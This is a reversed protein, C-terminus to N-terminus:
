PEKVLYANVECVEEGNVLELCVEYRMVTGNELDTHAPVNVWSLGQGNTKMLGLEQRQNDPTLLTVRSQVGSLPNGTKTSLISLFVVQSTEHGIVPYQEGIEFQIDDPTVWEGLLIDETIVNEELLKSVYWAGLPALEAMAAGTQTDQVLDLCYNEFCQRIITEETDYYATEAIPNGAISRGAHNMIFGDFLIPVHYGKDGVPYFYVDRDTGFVQDSPETELMGLKYSLPLLWASSLDNPQAAIAVHEFIQIQYGAENIFPYTLPDGFDVGNIKTLFTSFPSTNEQPQPIFLQTTIPLECGTTCVAHAVPLLYPMSGPDDLDQAIVVNEFYQEVRNRDYNIWANGLPQGAFRTDYLRDFLPTFEPHIVYGNIETGTEQITQQHSASPMLEGEVVVPALSFAEVEVQGKIVCMKANMTYQCYQDAEDLLPSIPPGLVEEAGLTYYFALFRTDILSTEFVSVEDPQIPQPFNCAFLVGAGTLVFATIFIILIKQSQKMEVNLLGGFLSLIWDPTSRDVLM